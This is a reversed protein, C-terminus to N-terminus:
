ECKISRSYRLMVIRLNGGVHTCQASIASWACAGTEPQPLRGSISTMESVACEGGPLAERM